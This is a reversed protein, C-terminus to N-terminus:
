KVTLAEVDTITSL